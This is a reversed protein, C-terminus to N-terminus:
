LLVHDKLINYFVKNLFFYFSIICGLEDDKSTGLSGKHLLDMQLIVTLM